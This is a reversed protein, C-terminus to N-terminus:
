VLLILKLIHLKAWYIKFIGSPAKLIKIKSIDKVRASWKNKTEVTKSIVKYKIKIKSAKFKIEKVKNILHVLDKDAATLTESHILMDAVEQVFMCVALLLDVAKGFSHCLKKREGIHALHCIGAM